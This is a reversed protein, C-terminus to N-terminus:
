KGGGRLGIKTLAELSLSGISTPGSITLSTSEKQIQSQILRMKSPTGLHSKGPTKSSTECYAAVFERWGDPRHDTTDLRKSTNCNRCLPQINDISDSGGSCLPVIHDKAIPREGCRCCKGDCFIILAQWEQPSHKGLRRGNALRESRTASSRIEGWRATAGLTGNASLTKKKKAVRNLEVEIRKHSWDPNFFEQMVPRLKAWQARSCRLFGRIREEDSPLGGHAWYYMILLLYSGHEELSLHSTDALYDGVFLPMWPRDTM